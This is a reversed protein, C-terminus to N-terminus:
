TTRLRSLAAVSFIVPYLREHYWLKAFYFGIPSPDDLQGTEIAEILWNKGKERADLVTHGFDGAIAELALATEEVSSPTGYGAGWGGDSNNARILWQIGKQAAMDGGRGFAEYALLVRATGYLPNEEMELYQNGFWLPVWYGDRHQQSDLYRFGREVSRHLRSLLRASGNGGLKKREFILRWANFARLVHATLDCGSRDFPLTGWGRCFTPWGGDSNQLNLLWVLGAKGAELHRLSPEGKSLALLAGATDDADPVGGPLDTWAWGGPAANTYPHIEQYQQDLLWSHIHERERGSLVSQEDSGNCGRSKNSSRALANMSLTTLWTSLNTDIPWSGDTRMSGTLFQVAREVVAHQSRGMAILAMTVFSTLPTAELFGGSTPQIGELVRLSKEIALRRLFRTIPNRPPDKYFKVLGVAILAPLAYSVVPFRLWKFMTAPLCALEFPLASVENWSVQGALACSMLIPVAFTRDKGYRTAVADAGGGQIVYSECANITEKFEDSEGSIQYAARVLMTTSINSFSKTTDGWGGDPNQHAALWKLGLSINSDIEHTVTGSSKRLLSLASIATATSLASASLLGHWIGNPERSQLLVGCAKQYAHGLRASSCKM